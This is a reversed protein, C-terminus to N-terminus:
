GDVVRGEKLDRGEFMRIISEAAERAQYIAKAATEPGLVADGGAFV